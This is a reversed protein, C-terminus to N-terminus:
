RDRYRRGTPDIVDVTVLFLIASRTTKTVQSQFLRGVIPLNGLIPTRDDVKEVHDALLGGIVMTAGDLIDVSTNLRNVSFIPELIANPTLEKTEPGFLGRVTSNIPSGYNVFGDFDTLVPNITLNVFQKNADVVPLVEMTIGVDREKFSTPTAPTVPTSGGGTGVSNPLQPPEYEDPYRFNRVSTILSSQGSRTVVSPKAVIDTGKKQNLGRMLMQVTADNIEGRLAIVGPASNQVQRGSQNTILDDIANSTAFDGSRNGSTIPNLLPAGVKTLPQIDTIPRGTGVTGGTLNLKKQGPVWANGAFGFNNLLWDFGLEELDNQLVKIMTLRVSVIVPESHTMAEIIQSIFDQNQLTNVVRLMNSAPMYSASAGQPFNVGQQALAEQAGLRTALLGGGSNTPKAFPDEAEKSNSAGSSISSIFDPPVRYTRTVLESSAAGLPVISVSFDDTSYSTQTIDTIYKLVQSLPVNALQLDFRLQNVRNVTPSDPAGLNVTFNVGKRTPDLEVTDNEVSRVRLYDLAENLTAQDLAIKHIIIRDLKNKVSVFDNGNTSIESGEVTPEVANGEVPTEWQGDVQALMEGRAEDYASKYYRSKEAAVRELGRRAASNTADIRIVAEYNSKSKDFEGLDFAGEATYLLRRVADVQQVIEKTLAPNIRIPDDLQARYALAGPNNPAVSKALVKDVAAKAGAMDGLRALGRAYEVSAQAYRQNTADLLAAALPANPILEHAGAYAEVADGYRGATYAEDGKSLLVQAEQIAVSRRSLESQAVGAGNRPEGARIPIILCAAALLAAGGLRSHYPKFTEM